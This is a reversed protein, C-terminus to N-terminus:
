DLPRLVREDDSIVRLYGGTALVAAVFRKKKLSPEPERSNAAEVDEDVQWFYCCRGQQRVTM